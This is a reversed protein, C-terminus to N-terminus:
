ELTERVLDIGLLHAKSVFAKDEDTRTKICPPYHYRLLSQQSLAALLQLGFERRAEECVWFFVIEPHAQGTRKEKHAAFLAFGVQQHTDPDSVVAVLTVSQWIQGFYHTYLDLHRSKFVKLLPRMHHTVQGRIVLDPSEIDVARIASQDREFNETVHGTRVAEDSQLAYVAYAVREADIAGIGRTEYFTRYIHVGASEFLTHIHQEADRQADICAAIVLFAAAKHFVEIRTQKTFPEMQALTTLEEWLHSYMEIPNEHHQLKSLLSHSPDSDMIQQAIVALQQARSIASINM